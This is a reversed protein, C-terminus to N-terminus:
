EGGIPERLSCMLEISSVQSLSLKMLKLSGM